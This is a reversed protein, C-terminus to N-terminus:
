ELKKWVRFFTQVGSPISGTFKKVQTIFDFPRHSCYTSTPTLLLKQKNSLNKALEFFLQSDFLLFRSYLSFTDNVIIIAILLNKEQCTKENFLCSTLYFRTINNGRACPYILMTLNFNDHEIDENAIRKKLSTEHSVHLCDSPVNLISLFIYVFRVLM